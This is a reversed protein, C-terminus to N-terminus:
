RTFVLTRMQCKNNEYPYFAKLKWQKFIGMIIHEQEILTFGEKSRGGITIAFFKVSYTHRNIKRLYSILEKNLSGCLDIWIANYNPHVNSIRGNILEFRNSLKSKLDLAVDKNWEVAIFKSRKFRNLVQNEFYTKKKPSYYAGPMSCVTISKNKNFCKRLEFFVMNRSAIKSHNISVKNNYFNMAM